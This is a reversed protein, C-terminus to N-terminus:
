EHRDDTATRTKTTNAAGRTGACFLCPDLAASYIPWDFASEPLQARRSSKRNRIVQDLAAKVMADREHATARFPQFMMRYLNGGIRAIVARDRDTERMDNARWEIDTPSPDGTWHALAAIIYPDNPNPGANMTPRMVKLNDLANNTPDGDAHHLVIM